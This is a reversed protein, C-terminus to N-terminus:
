KKISIFMRLNPDEQNLDNLTTLTFYKKLPEPYKYRLKNISFRWVQKTIKTKTESIQKLIKLSDQLKHLFPFSQLKPFIQSLM